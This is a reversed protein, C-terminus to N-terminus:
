HAEHIIKLPAYGYAVPRLYLIITCRIYIQIKNDAALQSKLIKRDLWLAINFFIINRNIRKDAAVAIMSVDRDLNNM